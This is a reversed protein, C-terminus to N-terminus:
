QLGLITVVVNSAGGLVLGAVRSRFYLCPSLVAGSSMIVGDGTTNTHSLITSFNVNDLSGELRIDWTTASAGTGKVAIAFSQLPKSSVDVTVGSTTGTFTDSRTNFEKAVRGIQASGAALVVAGTNVAVIKGDISSLSTNGADQKADTAASAPLPLAAASIPQTVPYFTGSVPLPNTLKGDISALSTNATDQKGGTAAGDPLPLAAASVPVATARLEDDTLGGGAAAAAGVSLVHLAGDTELLASRPMVKTPPM